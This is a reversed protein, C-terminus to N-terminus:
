RARHRLVSLLVSPHALAAPGDLMHQVRAFRRYAAPDEPLVALLGTLYRHALRRGVSLARSPDAALDATTSFTWPLRLLRAARRQFPRAVPGAPKGAAAREGLMTGLLVAQEAAVTMGQGYLPNLTCLADGLVTLGDPWAPMKHFLTWHNGPNTHRYTRSLPTGEAVCEAFHPNRLGTAYELFGTDDAPPLDDDRTILCIIWRGGDIALIGGGRPVAPLFPVEVSCLWDHDRASDPIEYLRSSYAFPSAVALRRARPYGAAELWRSLPSSRGTADVVLDAPLTLNEPTAGPALRRGIVARVRGAARDLALGDARFGDLTEVQPLATVRRRLCEELTDRGCSQLPIDLHASPAWGTPLLSRYATGFDFVPAQRASLEERLGPFLIELLQGGRALMGHPHRAQPVGPRPEGPRPARDREIVTVREFTEALVRATLLGAYGGGLVVAQRWPRPAAEAEARSIDTGSAM